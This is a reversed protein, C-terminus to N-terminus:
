RGEHELLYMYRSGDIDLANRPVGKLYPKILHPTSYNLLPIAPVDDNLLTEAEALMQYRKANDPELTARAMLAEFHPESYAGFNMVYDGKFLQLFTYPDPYEAIWNNQFLKAKHLALDQLLVRFEENYPEIQAGLTTQWMAALADFLDRQSPDTSYALEVRLPHAASYGAAAYLRQAEAHRREASWSAWVPLPVQYGPIAPTVRYAPPFLGQFVKAALIERDVAMSLALRLNRNGAFPPELMNFALMQTGLYSGVQVQAGLRSQLWHYQLPTFFDTYAVDGSLFRAPQTARDIPYYIVHNLRVNAADWYNPNKALEVRNGIIEAKLLFPGNCVMHEPRSWDDGYRELTARPLPAMFSDSVLDLLYPTPHTLAVHITYPDPAAVGLTEPAAKGDLIDEANVIPALEQGNQAATKPDVQHRWSYIYDAATIPEGNSWRAGHRLHFTWSRGDVSVEWSIAGAPIISGDPANSTLGEFLDTLVRTSDTDTALAPDLTSPPQDITRALSQDAALETGVHMPASTPSDSGSCAVMAAAALVPGARRLTRM